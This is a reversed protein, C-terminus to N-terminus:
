IRLTHQRERLIDELEPFVSLYNDRTPATGESALKCKLELLKEFVKSHKERPFKYEKYFYDPIVGHPDPCSTKSYLGWSQANWLLFLSDEM